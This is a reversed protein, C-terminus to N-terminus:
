LLCFSRFYITHTSSLTNDSGDFVTSRGVGKKRAAVEWPSGTM